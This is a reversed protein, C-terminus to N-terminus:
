ILVVDDLDAPTSEIGRLIEPQKAASM